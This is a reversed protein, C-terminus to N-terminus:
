TPAPGAHTQCVYGRDLAVELPVRTPCEECAVQIQITVSSDDVGEITGKTALSSLASEVKERAFSRAMGITDREWDGGSQSEKEGGLCDTLHTRMTGWSVMGSEARDVDVGEARLHETVEARRLDDDGTLADHAREVWSADVPGQEAIVQRLLRRNFWETLTRYGVASHSGEGRWRALLGDHISDHRPDAGELGHEAIVRDIKCGSSVSM